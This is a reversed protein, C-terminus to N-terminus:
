PVDTDRRASQDSEPDEAPRGQPTPPRRSRLVRSWGFPVGPVLFFGVILAVAVIALLASLFTSALPYEIGLITFVSWPPTAIMPLPQVRTLRYSSCRVGLCDKQRSGKM